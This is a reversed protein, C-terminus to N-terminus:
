KEKPITVTVLEPPVFIDPRTTIIAKKRIVGQVELIESLYRGKSGSGTGDASTAEEALNDIADEMEFDNEGEVVMGQDKEKPDKPVGNNHRVGVSYKSETYKPKLVSKNRLNQKQGTKKM